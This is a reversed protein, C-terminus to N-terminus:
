RLADHAGSQQAPSPTLECSSSEAPLLVIKNRIVELHICSMVRSSHARNLPEQDLFFGPAEKSWCINQFREV